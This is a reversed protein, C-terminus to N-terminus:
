TAGRDVMAWRLLLLGGLVLLAAGLAIGLDSFGTMPITTLGGGCCTIGGYGNM